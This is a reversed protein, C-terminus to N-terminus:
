RSGPPALDLVATSTPCTLQEAGGLHSRLTATGGQATDPTSTSVRTPSSSPAPRRAAAPRAGAAWGPRTRRPRARSAPSRAPTSRPRRLVPPSARAPAYTGGTGQTVTWASTPRSARPPPRRRHRLAQRPPCRGADLHRRHLPVRVLGPRLNTLSFLASGTDDDSLVVTGAALTNGTSSVRASFAAYSAQGVVGLSLLAALPWVLWRSRRLARRSPPKM